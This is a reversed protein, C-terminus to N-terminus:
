LNVLDVVSTDVGDDAPGKVVCGEDGHTTDGVHVVVVGRQPEGDDDHAEAEVEGRSLETLLYLPGDEGNQVGDDDAQVHEETGDGETHDSGAALPFVELPEVAPPDGVLRRWGVFRREKHEIAVLVKKSSATPRRPRKTVVHKKKRYVKPYRPIM